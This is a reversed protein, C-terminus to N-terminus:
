KYKVSDKHIVKCIISTDIQYSPVTINSGSILATGADIKEGAFYHKGAVEQEVLSYTNKM